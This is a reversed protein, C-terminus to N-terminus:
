FRRGARLLVTAGNEVVSVGTVTRAPISGGFDITSSGEFTTKRLVFGDVQLGVDWAGPQASLGARFTAWPGQSPSTGLAQASVQAFPVVGAGATLAAPGGGIAFPMAFRGEGRLEVAIQTQNPSLAEPWASGKTHQEYRVDGIAAISTATPDGFRWGGGASARALTGWGPLSKKTQAPTTLQTAPYLFQTMGGAIEAIAPGREFAIQIEPGAGSVDLRRDPEGSASEVRDYAFLGLGGRASLGIPGGGGGERPARAPKLRQAIRSGLDDARDPTGTLVQARGSGSWVMAEVQQALVYVLVLSKVDLKDAVARLRDAADSSVDGTALSGSIASAVAPDLAPVLHVDVSPHATKDAPVEFPHFAPRWGAPAQVELYHTGPPVSVMAAAPQGDLLAKAEPPDVRISVPISPMNRKLGAVLQAVSPPFVDAPVEGTPSIAIAKKAFEIAQDKQSQGLLVTAFWLDLEYRDKIPTNPLPDIESKLAKLAGMAEPLNDDFYSKQVADLASRTRDYAAPPPEVEALAKAVEPAALDDPIRAELRHLVEGATLPDTGPASVVLVANKASAPAALLLSLACMAAVRREM